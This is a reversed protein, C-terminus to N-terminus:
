LLYLPLTTCVCRCRLRHRSRDVGTSTCLDSRSRCRKGVFLSRVRTKRPGPNGAERPDSGQEGRRERSPNESKRDRGKEGSTSGKGTRALHRRTGPKAQTKRKPTGEIDLRETRSPGRTSGRQSQSGPNSGGMEQITEARGTQSGGKKGRPTEGNGATCPTL